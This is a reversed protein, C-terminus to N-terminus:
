GKIKTRILEIPREISVTVTVVWSILIVLPITLLMLTIDPRHMDMGLRSALAMVILGAQYHFLYIPYSLDGLLKDTRTNILPLSRRAHLIAVLVSCIVHNSYFFLDNALETITGIWWNLFFLGLLLAPLSTHLRRPIRDLIRVVSGRYHYILAGTSFPLSAAMPSFYRGWNNQPLLALIHFLISAVFWIITVQKSKSLGLAILIYFFIEVTLAWAPPTLRPDERMPFFISINRFIEYLGTPLYISNHYDTTYQRGLTIVLIASLMISIWYIPYIRLIRNIGFKFIGPITYGYNKQMIYTMLYGSLCYFGFVAYVGLHPIGGIHMIVVLLALFTRYTGFM